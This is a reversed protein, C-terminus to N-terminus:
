EGLIERSRWWALAVTAIAAAASLCGSFVMSMGLSSKTEAVMFIGILAVVFSFICFALAVVVRNKLMWYDPWDLLIKRAGSPALINSGLNYCAALLVIPVMVIGFGWEFDGNIQTAIFQAPEPWYSWIALPFGLGLMEPSVLVVRIMDVIRNM